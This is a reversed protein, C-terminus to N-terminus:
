TSPSKRWQMQIQHVQSQENGDDLRAADGVTGRAHM